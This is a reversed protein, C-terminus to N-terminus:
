NRTYIETWPQAVHLGELSSGPYDVDNRITLTKSNPSLEWRERTRTDFGPRNRAPYTVVVSELILNKGKLQGKCKGQVGTASTYGGEAGDLPFRNMSTRGDMVRTVEIAAATQVVSITWVTDKSFDFDGKAGTLTYSGSFNQGEAADLSPGLGLSPGLFILAALFVHLYTRMAFRDYWVDM